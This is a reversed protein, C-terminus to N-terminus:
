RRGSVRFGANRMCRVAWGARFGARTLVDRECRRPFGATQVGERAICSRTFIRDSGQSSRVATICRRPLTQLVPRPRAPHRPKPAVQDVRPKPQTWIQAPTQAAQESNKIVAAIAATAFLGFIIQGIQDENLGQANAPTFSLSLATAGAILTKFM